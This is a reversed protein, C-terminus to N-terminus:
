HYRSFRLKVFAETLFTCSSLQGTQDRSYHMVNFIDTQYQMSLHCQKNNHSQTNLFVSNRQASLLQNVVSTSVDPKETEETVQRLLKNLNNARSYRSAIFSHISTKTLTWMIASLRNSYVITVTIYTNHVFSANEVLSAWSLEGKKTTSDSWNEVHNTYM